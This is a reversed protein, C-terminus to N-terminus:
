RDIVNLTFTFYNYEGHRNFQYPFLYVKKNRVVIDSNNANLRVTLSHYFKNGNNLIVIGLVATNISEEVFVRDGVGIESYNSPTIDEVVYNVRDPSVIELFGPTDIKGSTDTDSPLFRSNYFATITGDTNQTQLVKYM